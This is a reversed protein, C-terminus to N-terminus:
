WTPNFKVHTLNKILPINYTVLGSKVEDIFPIIEPKAPIPWMM